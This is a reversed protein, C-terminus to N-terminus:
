NELNIGNIDFVPTKEKLDHKYIWTNVVREEGPLLSIYNDDWFVPAIIQNSAKDKISLDVFFAIYPSPNILKVSFWHKSTDSYESLEYKISAKNLKRLDKLDAYQSNPTVFWQNKSYDLVDEKTSLWYFNVAVLTTDDFLRLDIFYTTSINKLEKIESIKLSSNEEISVNIKENYILSSKSDFVKIEANLNTNSNVLDSSVYVSKDGYNYMINLPKCANRTGYFAGNPLLYWDYLQWYMEPWASNLMWQIVGTSNFKNIRFAEFMPRISEYNTVQCMKAFDEINESRGYRNDFAHLFRNLTHFENRGCHFNWSYNTPPWLSDKPIMNKISELPPVQPGPGTETNFGYAGGYLQDVYWYNPTVYDYPGRMKVRTPGSIKSTNHFEDDSDYYKCSALIPRSNDVKLIAENLISELETPPLKDSGYTWLFISPHNRLWIVQDVYSKMHLEYEHPYISMYDTEPRGCYGQWEWQCSWGIMILIGNEDAYDYLKENRGWFGELRITNLNMHKVYDMQSKVKKDSDSLLMDDVWGAGKILVKKGNIMWGKHGENNIFQHISRIGFRVAKKDSIKGNCNVNISLDYLEAKGMGNPWWLRPDQLLLQDFESPSFQVDITQKPM